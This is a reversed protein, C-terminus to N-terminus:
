KSWTYMRELFAELFNLFINWGSGSIDKFVWFDCLRLLSTLWSISQCIYLFNSIIQIIKWCGLFTELLNWFSIEYLVPYIRYQCIKPLSPLWSVSQCVYLFTLIIQFRGAFMGSSDGFFNLFIYWGTSSIDRYKYLKLLSTLWSVSQCVFLFTVSM